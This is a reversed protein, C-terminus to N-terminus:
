RRLKPKRNTPPARLHPCHGDASKQSLKTMQESNHLRPYNFTEYLPPQRAGGGGRRGHANNIALNKCSIWATPNFDAKKTTNISFREASVNHARRNIARILKLKFISNIACVLSVGRQNMNCGTYLNNGSM